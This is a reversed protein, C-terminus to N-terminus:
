VKSKNSKNIKIGPAMAVNYKNKMHKVTVLFFLIVYSFDITFFININSILLIIIKIQWFNPNTLSTYCFILNGEGTLLYSQLKEKRQVYDALLLYTFPTTTFFHQYFM